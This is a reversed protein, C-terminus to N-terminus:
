GQHSTAAVEGREAALTEMRAPTLPPRVSESDWGFLFSTAPGCVRGQCPGMGCRTHLRAERGNRVPKLASHCVDECRCVITDGAAISRLEARPAFAADLQRAFRLQRDRQSLLHAASRGAAALGAIEGEILAKDLGGIGTLEGVCYINPVSSLQSADVRVYGDEVVCGLLRPLELNPVLHFGCGLYDCAITRAKGDVSVTVSQLRDSGNARTIWSNARYATSGLAVRYRAGDAMKRPHRVLSMAFRMLRGLPAQEFIGAIKAGQTALNAAVALLLPGSGALVVRKGDIPLGAKVMAQLGGAGMVGPLTWGPFPLFRERAGTALILKDYRVDSCGAGSEVRLRGPAPGAVVRTGAMVEIRAATLRRMLSTFREAGRNPDSAYGRWIQGGPSANDDIIRVRCGAEAAAAAASMGAPGAGVVLVECASM